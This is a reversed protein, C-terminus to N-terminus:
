QQYDFYTQNSLLNTQLKQSSIAPDSDTAQQPLNQHPCCIQLTYYTYYHRKICQRPTRWLIIKPQPLTMMSIM